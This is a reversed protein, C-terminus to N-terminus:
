KLIALTVYTGPAKRSLETRAISAVQRFIRYVDDTREFRSAERDLNGLFSLLAPADLTACHAQAQRFMEAAGTQAITLPTAM